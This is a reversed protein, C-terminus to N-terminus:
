IMGQIKRALGTEFYKRLDPQAIETLINTGFGEVLLRASERPSLGRSRLYFLQEEAIQGVTAGHSCKVDDAEIILEPTTNVRAQEGLLINRNMQYAETGAAPPSVRIRGNFVGHGSGAIIGRYEQHSACERVPHHVVPRHHIIQRAGACYVGNLVARAHAGRLHVDLDYRTLASEGISMALSKLSAGELAAVRTMAMGYSREGDQTLRAYELRAEEHLLIETLPAHVASAGGDLGRHTELVAASSRPGMILLVRPLTLRDPGQHTTLHVLHILPAVAVDAAVDIVVGSSFFARNMLSFFADEAHDFHRLANQVQDPCERCAASWSLVKLAKFPTSLNRYIEVLEGDVFLITFERTSLGASREIHGRDVHGISTLAFRGAQIPSLPTFRWGEEKMSPLAATEFRRRAQGRLAEMWGAATAEPEPLFFINHYVRTQETM